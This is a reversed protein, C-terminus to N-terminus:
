GKNVRRNGMKKCVEKRDRSLGNTKREESVADAKLRTKDERNQGHEETKMEDMVMVTKVIEDAVIVDEVVCDEQKVGRAFKGDYKPKSDM